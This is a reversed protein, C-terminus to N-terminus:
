DIRRHRILFSFLDGGLRGGRLGKHSTANDRRFGPLGRRTDCSPRGQGGTCGGSLSRPEVNRRVVAVMWRYLIEDCTSNLSVGHHRRPLVSSAPVNLMIFTPSLVAVRQYAAKASTRAVTVLAGACAVSARSSTSAAAPEATLVTAGALRGATGPDRRGTSLPPDGAVSQLTPATAAVARCNGSYM